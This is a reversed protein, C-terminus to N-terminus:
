GVKARFTDAFDDALNAGVFKGVRVGDGRCAREEFVNVDVVDFGFFGGFFAPLNVAFWTLIFDAGRPENFLGAEFAFEEVADADAIGCWDDEDVFRGFGVVVEDFSAGFDDASNIIFETEPEFM